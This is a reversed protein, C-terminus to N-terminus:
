AELTIGKEVIYKVLPGGPFIWHSSTSFPITKFLMHQLPLVKFKKRPKVIDFESMHRLPCLAKVGSSFQVIAGFGDVAIVKAKMVMGPKVDSHTFVSGEFASAQKLCFILCCIFVQYCLNYSRIKYLM